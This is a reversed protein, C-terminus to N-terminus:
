NEAGRKGGFLRSCSMNGPLLPPFLPLVFLRWDEKERIRYTRKGWATRQMVSDVGISFHTPYRKRLAYADDITMGMEHASLLVGYTYTQVAMEIATMGFCLQAAFRALGSM